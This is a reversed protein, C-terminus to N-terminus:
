ELKVEDIWVTNTEARGGVSNWSSIMFSVGIINKLDPKDSYHKVKHKTWLTPTFDDFSIEIRQWTKDPRIVTKQYFSVWTRKGSKLVADDDFCHLMFFIKNPKSFFSRAKKGKLYFVM